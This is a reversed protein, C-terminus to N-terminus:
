IVRASIFVLLIVPVGPILLSPNVSSYFVGVVKYPLGLRYDFALFPMNRHAVNCVLRTIKIGHLRSGKFVARESQWEEEIARLM